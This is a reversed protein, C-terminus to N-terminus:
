LLRFPTEVFGAVEKPQVSKAEFVPLDSCMCWPLTIKNACFPSEPGCGSTFHLWPRMTAVERRFCVSTHTGTRACDLRFGAKLQPACLTACMGNRAFCKTLLLSLGEGCRNIPQKERFEAMKRQERIDKEVRRSHARACLPVNRSRSLLMHADTSSRTQVMEFYLNHVKFRRIHPPLSPAGTLFCWM